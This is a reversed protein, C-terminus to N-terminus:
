AYYDLISEVPLASYVEDRCRGTSERELESESSMSGIIEETIWTSSKYRCLSVIDTRVSKHLDCLRYRRDMILQVSGMGMFVYRAFGRARFRLFVAVAADRKEEPCRHVSMRADIQRVADYVHRRVSSSKDFALRGVGEVWKFADNSIVDIVMLQFRENDNMWERMQSKTEGRAAYFRRYRDLYAIDCLAGRLVSGVRRSFKDEIEIVPAPDNFKLRCTAEISECGSDSKECRETDPQARKRSKKAKEQVSM